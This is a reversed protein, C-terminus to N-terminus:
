SDAYVFPDVSKGTYSYHNSLLRFLTRAQHGNLRTTTEDEINDIFLSTSNLRPDTTIAMDPGSERNVTETRLKKNKCVRSRIRANRNTDFERDRNFFM